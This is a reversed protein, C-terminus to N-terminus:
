AARRAGRNSRRAATARRRPRGRAQAARAAPTGGAKAPPKRVHEVSRRLAEMLDVVKGGPAPKEALEIPRGKAKAQIIALLTERYGDRYKEPTFDARLAEIFERAVAVERPNPRPLRGVELERVEDGYYLTHLALKGGDPRLLAYQQRQSMVFTVVAAKDGDRMAALLVAYARETGKQPGVWYSRELYVPDVTGADVFHVVDIARSTAREAKDFDEPEVPVYRRGVKYAKVTEKRSVEREEKACWLRYQIRGMDKGHLMDLDLSTSRAAVHLEVPISVLGFTIIGKRAAM